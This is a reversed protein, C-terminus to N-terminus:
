WCVAVMDRGCSLADSKSSCISEKASRGYLYWHRASPCARWGATGMQAAWHRCIYVDAAAAAVRGGM